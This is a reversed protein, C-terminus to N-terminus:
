FNGIIEILQALVEGSQLDTRLDKVPKLGPKKRLQSNVWAIYAQLQQKWEDWSVSGSGSGSYQDINGSAPRGSGSVSGKGQSRHYLPGGSGGPGPGLGYSDEINHRGPASPTPLPLPPPRQYPPLEKQLVPPQFHM